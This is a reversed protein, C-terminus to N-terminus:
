AYGGEMPKAPAQGQQRKAERSLATRIYPEAVVLRRHRALHESIQRAKADPGLFSAAEVVAGEVTVLPLGSVLPADPADQRYVTHQEPRQDLIVAVQVPTVHVGHDNCIEVLEALPADPHADRVLRVADEAGMTALKRRLVEEATEQRAPGVQKPAPAATLMGALAGDAGQRLRERQVAVLGEALEPDDRGIDQALKWSKRLAAERKDEDPHREAVAQEYALRQVTDAIRRRAEADIGTTYIVIRRAILGLGEAAGSMALPTAAYVVAETVTDAISIGVGSAAVPALWLGIHVPRPTAQGLLTLALMTLALVLTLGEGAAVVGMATAARHFETVVNTYTGWAGFGGVALMPVAAAALMGKQPRTLERTSM